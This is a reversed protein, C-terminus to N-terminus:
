YRKKRLFYRRDAYNKLKNPIVDDDNQGGLTSSFLAFAMLSDEDMASGLSSVREKSEFEGMRDESKSLGQALLSGFFAKYHGESESEMGKLLANYEELKNIEWYLAALYCEVAEKDTPDDTNIETFIKEAEELCGLSCYLRGMHFDTIGDIKRVFNLQGEEESVGEEAFLIGLDKLRKRLNQVCIKLGLLSDEIRMSVDSPERQVIIRTQLLERVSSILRLDECDDYEAEEFINEGLTISSKM